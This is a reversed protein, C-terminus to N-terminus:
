VFDGGSLYYDIVNPESFTGPEVEIYVERTSLETYNILDLKRLIYRQYEDWTIVRYNRPLKPRVRELGIM